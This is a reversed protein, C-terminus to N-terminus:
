NIIISKFFKEVNKIVTPERLTKKDSYITLEQWMPNDKNFDIKDLIQKLNGYPINEDDMRKALIVHGVFFSKTFLLNDNDNIYEEYEEFLYELYIKFKELITDISKRREPKWHKDFANALVYASTIHGLEKYLTNENAIKGALMGDSKLRKILEDAHRAEALTAIRAKSIPTAEAHEVQYNKAQRTTMNDIYLIMTGSINPNELYAEYIGLTRHMGDLIDIRTGETITLALTKPDYILEQESPDTSTGVACNYVLTSLLQEGKLVRKKIKSVKKHIVKPKEIIEDGIKKTQTERQIDPNYFLVNYKKMRAVKSYEVFTVFRGNEDRLVNELIMPLEIKDKNSEDIYYYQSFEKIEGANFWNSLELEEAEELKIYMQNCILALEYNNAESFRSPDNLFYKIRGSSIGHKESLFATLEKVKNPHEKIDHVYKDLVVILEERTKNYKM